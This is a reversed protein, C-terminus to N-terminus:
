IIFVMCQVSRPAGKTSTLPWTSTPSPSTSGLSFAAWLSESTKDGQLMAQPRNGTDLRNETNSNNSTRFGKCIIMVGSWALSAWAGPGEGQEENSMCLRLTKRKFFDGWITHTKLGVIGPGAKIVYQSRCQNKFAFFLKFASM